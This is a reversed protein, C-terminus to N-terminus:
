LGPKNASELKAKLATVGRLSGGFYDGSRFGPIFFSDVLKKTENDSLMTEIGTGNQIRMYRLSSSIGILIGNNKEKQGVGWARALSITYDDFRDKKTFQKPITVIAIRITTASDFAALLCALVSEQEPTFLDEFDNVYGVPRPFSDAVQTTATYPPPALYDSPSFSNCAFFLYAWCAMSFMITYGERKMNGRNDNM